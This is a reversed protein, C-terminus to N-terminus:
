MGLKSQQPKFPQALIDAHEKVAGSLVANAMKQAVVLATLPALEYSEGTERWLIEVLEQAAEAARSKAVEISAGM